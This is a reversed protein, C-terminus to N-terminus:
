DLDVCAEELEKIVGEPVQNGREGKWGNVTNGSRIPNLMLGVDNSTLRFVIMMLKLKIKDDLNSYNRIIDSEFDGNVLADELKKLMEKSLSRPLRVCKYVYYTPKKLIKSFDAYKLNCYTRLISLKIDNSGVKYAKIVKGLFKKGAM